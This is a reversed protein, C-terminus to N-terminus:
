RDNEDHVVFQYYEAFKRFIAYIGMSFRVLKGLLIVVISVVYVEYCVVLWLYMKVSLIKHTGWSRRSYSLIDDDVLFYAFAVLCGLIIVSVALNAPSAIEVLPTFYGVTPKAPPTEKLFTPFGCRPCPQDTGLLEQAFDFKHGCHRCEAIM